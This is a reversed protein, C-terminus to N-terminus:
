IGIKNISCQFNYFVDIKNLSIGVQFNVFIQLSGGFPM